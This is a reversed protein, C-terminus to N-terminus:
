EDRDDEQTAAALLAGAEIAVAANFPGRSKWATAFEDILAQLRATKAQWRELDDLAQRLNDVQRGDRSRWADVEARLLEIEADNDSCGYRGRCTWKGM